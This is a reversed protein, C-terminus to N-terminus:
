TGEYEASVDLRTEGERDGSHARVRLRMWAGGTYRIEIVQGNIGAAWAAPESATKYRVFGAAGNLIGEDTVIRPRDVGSCFAAAITGALTDDDGAYRVEVQRNPWTELMADIAEDGVGM